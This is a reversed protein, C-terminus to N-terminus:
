RLTLAILWTQATLRVKCGLLWKLCIIIRLLYDHLRELCQRTIHEYDAHETQESHWIESFNSCNETNPGFKGLRYNQTLIM